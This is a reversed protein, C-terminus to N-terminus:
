LTAFLQVIGFLSQAWLGLVNKTQPLEAEPLTSLSPPVAAQSTPVRPLVLHKPVHVGEAVPTISRDSGKKRAEQLQHDSPRKPQDKVKAGGM